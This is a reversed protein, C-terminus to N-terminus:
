NNIFVCINKKMILLNIFSFTSIFFQRLKLEPTNRSRSIPLIYKKDGNSIVAIPEVMELDDKNSYINVEFEETPEESQVTSAASNLQQIHLQCATDESDFKIRSDLESSFNKLYNQKKQNKECFQSSEEIDQSFFQPFSRTETQEQSLLLESSKMVDFNSSKDSELMSSELNESESIPTYLFASEDIVEQMQKFDVGSNKQTNESSMHFGTSEQIVKSPPYLESEAEKVESNKQIEEMTMYSSLDDHTDNKILSSDDLSKIMLTDSSGECTQISCFEDETSQLFKQFPQNDLKSDNIAILIEGSSCGDLPVWRESLFEKVALKASGLHDDRGIDEDFVKLEIIENKNIPIPFSFEWAPDHNNNITKSREVRGGCSIQVYPDVKCFMGKKELNRAQKVTVLVSEVSCQSVNELDESINKITGSEKEYEDGLFSISEIGTSNDSNSDKLKEEAIKQQDKSGVENTIWSKESVLRTDEKPLAFTNKEEDITPHDFSICDSEKIGEFPKKFSEISNNESSPVESPLLNTINSAQYSLHSEKNTTDLIVHENERIIDDLACTQVIERSGEEFEISETNKHLMESEKLITVESPEIDCSLVKQYFEEDIQHNQDMDEEIKDTKLEEILESNKEWRKESIEEDKKFTEIKCSIQLRGTRCNQLEYWCNSINNDDDIKVVVSGLSDDTGIDEDFVSLEIFKVMKRSNFKHHFNWIPNHSNVITQTKVVQEGIRIKVYPDVKGFIGKKELDEAKHIDIHYLKEEEETSRDFTEPVIEKEQEFSKQPRLIGKLSKKGDNEQDDMVGIKLNEDTKIIEKDINMKVSEKVFNDESDYFEKQHIEGIYEDQRKEKQLVNIMDEKEESFGSVKENEKFQIFM